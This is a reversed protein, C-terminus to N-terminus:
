LVAAKLSNLAKFTTYAIGILGFNSLISSISASVSVGGSIAAAVIGTLIGANVALKTKGNGSRTAIAYMATVGLLNTTAPNSGIVPIKPAVKAVVGLVAVVTTFSSMLQTSANSLTVDGASTGKRMNYASVLALIVNDRLPATSGIARVAAFNAVSAATIDGQSLENGDSSLVSKAISTIQTVAIVAWINFCWTPVSLATALGGFVEPNSAVGTTSVSIGAKDMLAKLTFLQPSHDFVRMARNLVLNDAKGSYEETLDTAQTIIGEVDMKVATLSSLGFNPVTRIPTNLPAFAMASLPFAFFLALKM